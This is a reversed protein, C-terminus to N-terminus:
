QFRKELFKCGLLVIDTFLGNINITLWFKIENEKTASAAKTRNFHFTLTTSGNKKAKVM